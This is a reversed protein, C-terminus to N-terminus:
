LPPQNPVSNTAPLKNMTELRRLQQQEMFRLERGLCALTRLNFALFIMVISILALVIIVAMGERRERHAPHIKM